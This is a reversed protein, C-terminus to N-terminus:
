ILEGDENYGVVSPKRPIGNVVDIVKERGEFVEYLTYGKAGLGKLSIRMSSKCLQCKKFQVWNTKLAPKKPLPLSKVKGQRCNCMVEFVYRPNAM